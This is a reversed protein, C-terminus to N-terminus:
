IGRGDTVTQVASEVASFLVDIDSQGMAGILPLTPTDLRVWTGDTEIVPSLSISVSSDGFSINAIAKDTTTDGVTIPQINIIM